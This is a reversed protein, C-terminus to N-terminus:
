NGRWLRADYLWRRLKKARIRAADAHLPNILINREEIVIVSPVVLLASSRSTSWAEGADLSVKGAPIADWDVNTHRDFQVAAAWVDDPIAIQVLYRNLPLDGARLHVITELSALAISSSAYVMPTGIRNWRGGSQRAGEGTLDDATYDPTDPAIRWAFM